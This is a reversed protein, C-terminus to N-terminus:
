KELTDEWISEKYRDLHKSIVKAAGKPIVGAKAANAVISFAQRVTIALYAGWTSIILMDYTAIRKSEEFGQHEMFLNGMLPFSHIATLVITVGFIDIISKEFKNSCFLWNENRVRGCRIIATLTDAIYLMWIIPLTWFPEWIWYEVFGQFWLLTSAFTISVIAIQILTLKFIGITTNYASELILSPLTKQLNQILM